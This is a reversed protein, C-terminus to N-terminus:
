FTNTLTESTVRGDSHRTYVVEYAGLFDNSGYESWVAPELRLPPMEFHINGEKPLRNNTEVTKLESCEVGEFLLTNKHNRHVQGSVLKIWKSWQKGHYGEFAERYYWAGSRNQMAEFFCGFLGRSATFSQTTYAM